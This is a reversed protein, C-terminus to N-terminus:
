KDTMMQKTINRTLSRYPKTLQFRISCRCIAAMYPIQLFVSPTILIATVIYDYTKEGFKEAKEVKEVIKHLKGISEIDYNKSRIDFDKFAGEWNPIIPPPAIVLIKGTLIKAYM